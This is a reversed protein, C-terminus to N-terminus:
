AAPPLTQLQREAALVIAQPSIPLGQSRLQAAAMARDIPDPANLARKVLLAVENFTM